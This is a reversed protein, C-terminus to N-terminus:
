RGAIDGALETVAAKSWNFKEQLVRTFETVIDDSIAIKIQNAAAMDLVRRAAGGFQFASIWVNSDLRVKV